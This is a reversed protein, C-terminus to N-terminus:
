DDLPALSVPSLGTLGNARAWDAIADHDGYGFPAAPPALSAPSLGTLGNKQAMDAIAPHDDVAPVPRPPDQALAAGLGFTLGGVAIVGGVLALLRPRSGDASVGTPVSTSIDNSHMDHREDAGSPLADVRDLRSGPVSCPAAQRGILLLQRMIVVTSARDTRDRVQAEPM